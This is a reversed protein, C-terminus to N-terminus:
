GAGAGQIPLDMVDRDCTIKVVTDLPSAAEAPITFCYHGDAHQLSPNGGGLLRTSVITVGPLEPIRAQLQGGFLHLFVRNGVRTSSFGDVPMYPGGRTGYVSEGFRGLWDGMARLCAAQDPEIAGDSRPSINYLFNGNGGICRLLLALSAKLDKARDPARWEWNDTITTCNEWPTESFQGMEQERTEFDGVREGLPRNVVRSPGRNGNDLRSNMLLRDDKGRLYAYVDAGIQPSWVDIAASMDFWLIRSGYREILEACQAKLTDVYPGIGGVVPPNPEKEPPHPVRTWGFALSDIVSYYTGFLIGQRKCEDALERLVDRGFPTHMINYDTEKTDWLCFGDHHKTVMVLYRAGSAKIVSVWERADFKVPDFRRYLNDFEDIPTDRGRSWGIEKGTLTVPGWHIFIGFRRDQFDRLSELNTRLDPRLYGGGSMTRAPLDRM